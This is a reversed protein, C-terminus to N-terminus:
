SSTPRAIDELWARTEPARRKSRLEACGMLAALIFAIFYLAAVIWPKTVAAVIGGIGTFAAVLGSTWITRTNARPNLVARADIRRMLGVGIGRAEAM